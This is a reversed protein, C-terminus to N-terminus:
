KKRRRRALHKGVSFFFFILRKHCYPVNPRKTHTRNRKAHWITTSPCQVHIMHFELAISDIWESHLSLSFLTRSIWCLYRWTWTVDFWNWHSIIPTLSCRVRSTLMQMSSTIKQKALADVQLRSVCLAHCIIWPELFLKEFERQSSTLATEITRIENHFQHIDIGCQVAVLSRICSHWAFGHLFFNFSLFLLCYFHRLLRIRGRQGIFEWQSKETRRKRSRRRSDITRERTTYVVCNRAVYSYWHVM